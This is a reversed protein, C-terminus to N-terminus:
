GLRPIGDGGTPSGPIEWAGTQLVNRAHSFAVQLSRIVIKKADLVQGDKLNTIQRKAADFGMEGDPIENLKETIEALSVRSNEIQARLPALLAECAVKAGATQNPKLLARRSRWLSNGGGWVVGQSSAARASQLAALIRTKRESRDSESVGGVRIAVTAGVLSALRERLKEAEFEAGAVSIQQRVGAARLEVLHRDGHPRILWTNDKSVEASEAFGLQSIAANQLLSPHSFVVGGTVVAIDELITERTPGFGPSKVAVSSLLGKTHNVELTALAEGEVDDAIVLLSRKARAVQELVPLLQHMSNLKFSCLLIQADALIAFQRPEDTIFRSSIFGRNFHMGEQVLRDTTLTPSEEIYVVGDAGADALASVAVHADLADGLAAALAVGRTRTEDALEASKLLYGVASEVALDMETILDRLLIGNRLEKYGGKVMECFLLAATKAGDGLEASVERTVERVQDLGLQVLPDVSSLAAAIAAGNRSQRGGFTRTSTLVGTGHPGIAMSIAEQAQGIGRLVPERAELSTVFPGSTDSYKLGRTDYPWQLEETIANGALVTKITERIDSELKRQWDIARTDYLICRRHRYDFPVDEIKQSILITPIGLAHCLGLEYNVNPNKDTVDAIVIQASWIFSWIDQIIAGTGYIQDAKIARLGVSEAAPTLIAKFYANHLDNFPMLVFCLKSDVNPRFVM